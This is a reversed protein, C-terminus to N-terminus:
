YTECIYKSKVALRLVAVCATKRDGCSFKQAITSDHFMVQFVHLKTINKNSNFSLHTCVTHLVWLVEAKLM